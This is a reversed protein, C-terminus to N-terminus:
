QNGRWHGPEFGQARDGEVGVPERGGRKRRDALGLRVSAHRCLWHFWEPRGLRDTVQKPQVFFRANLEAHEAVEPLEPISHDDTGKAEAADSQAVSPWSVEAL